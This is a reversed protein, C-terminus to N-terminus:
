RHRADLARKWRPSIDSASAILTRIGAIGHHEFVLARVDRPDKREAVFREFQRELEQQLTVDACRSRLSASMQLDGAQTDGARPDPVGDREVRSIENDIARLSEEAEKRLEAGTRDILYHGHGNGIELRHKGKAGIDLAHQLKAENYHREETLAAIHERKREEAEHDRILQELNAREVAISEAATKEPARRM